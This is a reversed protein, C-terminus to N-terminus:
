ARKRFLLVSFWQNPDTFHEIPILEFFTLQEQLRLPDFKRSIEVLIKEDRMWHFSTEVPPFTITQSQAAIAYMEIQRWESDFHAEYRMNKLDFNSQLLDNIHCFVNLIFQATLGESDNYAHELVATDKLRDVGLLLYDSPGMAHSL